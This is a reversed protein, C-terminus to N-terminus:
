YIFALFAQFLANKGNKDTTEQLDHFRTGALEAYQDKWRSEVLEGKKREHVRKSNIEKYPEKNIKWNGHRRNQM